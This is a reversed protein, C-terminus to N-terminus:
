YAEEWGGEERMVVGSEGERMVVGKGGERKVMGGVGGEDGNVIGGEWEKRM